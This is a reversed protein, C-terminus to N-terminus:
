VGPVMVAHVYPQGSLQFEEGFDAGAHCGHLKLLCGEQNGAIYDLM